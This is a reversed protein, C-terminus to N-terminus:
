AKPFERVVLLVLRRCVRRCLGLWYGLWLQSREMRIGEKDKQACPLSIRLDESGSSGTTEGFHSVRCGHLNM